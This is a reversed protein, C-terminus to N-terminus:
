VWDLLHSCEFNFEEQALQSEQEKVKADYDECTSFVIENESKIFEM